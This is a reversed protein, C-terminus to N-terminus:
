RAGDDRDGSEGESAVHDRRELMRLVPGTLFRYAADIHESVASLGERVAVPPFTAQNELFLSRRDNALTEVRVAFASHEGNAPPFVLRLGLGGLPRGLAQADLEDFGLVGDRLLEISTGYARPNVLTRLTVVQGTFMAFGRAECVQESVTVVRDAFEGPTLGTGEEHFRFRDVLFSAQSIAGPRAVLNSLTCGEHTVAFSRYLPEPSQFLRNHVRQVVAADVPGPPHLLECHFGVTRTSYTM